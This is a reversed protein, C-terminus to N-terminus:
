VAESKRHELIALVAERERALEHAFEGLEDVKDVKFYAACLVCVVTFGRCIWVVWGWWYQLKPDVDLHDFREGLAIIIGHLFVHWLAQGFDWRKISRM